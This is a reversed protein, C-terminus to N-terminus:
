VSSVQGALKGGQSPSTGGQAISRHVTHRIIQQSAGYACNQTKTL